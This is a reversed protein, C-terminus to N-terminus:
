KSRPLLSAVTEIVVALANRRRKEGTTPDVADTPPGVFKGDFPDFTIPPQRSRQPEIPTHVVLRGDPSRQRVVMTRGGITLAVGDDRRETTVGFTGRLAALEDFLQAVAKRRADEFVSPDMENVTTALVRQAAQADYTAM